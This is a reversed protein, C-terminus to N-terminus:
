IGLGGPLRRRSILSSFVHMLGVFPLWKFVLHSIHKHAYRLPYFHKIFQLEKEQSSEREREREKERERERERERRSGREERPETKRVRRKKNSGRPEERQAGRELSKQRLGEELNRKGRQAGRERPRTLM